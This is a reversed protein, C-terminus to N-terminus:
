SHFRDNNPFSGCTSVDDTSLLEVLVLFFNHCVSVFVVIPGNRRPGLIADPPRRVAIYCCVGCCLFAFPLCGVTACLVVGLILLVRGPRALPVPGVLFLFLGTSTSLSCYRESDVGKRSRRLHPPPTPHHNTTPRWSSALGYIPPLVLEYVHVFDVGM